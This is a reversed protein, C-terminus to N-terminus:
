INKASDDSYRNKLRVADEPVPIGFLKYKILAYVNWERRIYTVGNVVEKIPLNPMRRWICYVRVDYGAAALSEAQKVVRYDPNCINPVIMAIRKAPQM